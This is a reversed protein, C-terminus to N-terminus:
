YLLIIILNFDNKFLITLHVMAMQKWIEIEEEKEEEEEEEDDNESVCTGSHQKSDWDRWNLTHKVCTHILMYIYFHM